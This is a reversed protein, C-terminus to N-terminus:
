STGLESTENRKLKIKKLTPHLKEKNKRVQESAGATAGTKHCRMCVPGRLVAGHM